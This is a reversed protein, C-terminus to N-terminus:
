PKDLFKAPNSAWDLMSFKRGVMAAASEEKKNHRRQAVHSKAESAEGMKM